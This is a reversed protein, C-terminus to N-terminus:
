DRYVDKRFGVSLVTIVGGEADVEYIVRCKGVRYKYLGGFSGKLPKGLKLPSQSLYSEVKATITQELVRGLVRFEEITAKDWL